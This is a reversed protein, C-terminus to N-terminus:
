KAEKILRRFKRHSTFLPSPAEQGVSHTTLRWEGDDHLVEDTALITEGEKLLRYRDDWNNQKM